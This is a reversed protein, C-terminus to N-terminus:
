KFLGLRIANVLLEQQSDNLYKAAHEYHLWRFRDLEPLRRREYKCFFTSDCVLKKDLVGDFTYAYAVLRKPRDLYHAMGLMARRFKYRGRIIDDRHIGTEETMERWAAKLDSECDDKCGKPISWKKPSEGTPHGILIQKHKNILFIGCTTKM